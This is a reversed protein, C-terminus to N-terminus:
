WRHTFARPIALPKAGKKELEKRTFVKKIAEYDYEVELPGFCWECVFIPEKLYRRGCERCKLGKVYM